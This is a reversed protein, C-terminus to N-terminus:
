GGLRVFLWAFFALQLMIAAKHPWMAEHDTKIVPATGQGEKTTDIIALTIVLYLITVTGWIHALVGAGTAIFIADVMGVVGLFYITHPLLLLTTLVSDAINNDTKM